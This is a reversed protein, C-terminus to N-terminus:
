KRWGGLMASVMFRWTILVTLSDFIYDADAKTLGGLSPTRLCDCAADGALAVAVMLACSMIWTKGTIWLMRATNCDLTNQFCFAQNIWGSLLWCTSMVVSALGATSLSPSYNINAVSMITLLHEPTMASNLQDFWVPLHFATFDGLPDLMTAQDVGGSQVMTLYMDNMSHDMFSYIFLALIDGSMILQDEPPPPLISKKKQDPPTLASGAMKFATADPARQRIQNHHCRPAFAAAAPFLSGINACHCLLLVILHKMTHPLFAPLLLLTYQFLLTFECDVRLDISNKKNFHNPTSEASYRSRFLV